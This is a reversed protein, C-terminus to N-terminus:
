LIVIDCYFNIHLNQDTIANAIANPIKQYYKATLDTGPDNQYGDFLREVKEYTATLIAM